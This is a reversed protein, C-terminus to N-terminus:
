CTASRKARNQRMRVFIVSGILGCGLMGASPPEPTGEPATADTTFAGSVVPRYPSCNFCEVSGSGGGWTNLNVDVMGGADTLASVPTLRLQRTSGNAMFLYEKEYGAVQYYAGATSDAPTYTFASLTGSTTSINWNSLTQSDADWDFTGTATAGDNFTIANLSWNVTSASGIQAVVLASTLLLLHKYTM